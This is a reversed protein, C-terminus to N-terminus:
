KELIEEQYEEPFFTLTICPQEDQILDMDLAERPNVWKWEVHESNLTITPESSLVVKFVHWIFDCDPYTVYTTQIFQLDTHSLILGTEESVERLIAEEKTENQECKGGPTCWKSPQFKGTPSRFLLLTKGNLEFLCGVGEFKPSFQEPKKIYLM